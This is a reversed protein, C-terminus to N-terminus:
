PPPGDGYVPTCADREPGARTELGVWMLLTTDRAESWRASLTLQAQQGTTYSFHVPEGGAVEVDIEGDGLPDRAQITWRGSHGVYVQACGRLTLGLTPLPNTRLTGIGAEIPIHVWGGGGRLSQLLDLM